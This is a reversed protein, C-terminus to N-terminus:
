IKRAIILGHESAGLISRDECTSLHFAMWKKFKEESLENVVDGIIFKMGDTAIHHVIELNYNEVEKEVLEPTTCYFVKNKSHFGSKMYEDLLEFEGTFM